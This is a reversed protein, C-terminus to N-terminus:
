ANICHSATACLSFCSVRRKPKVTEGRARMERSCASLQLVLLLVRYVSLHSSTALHLDMFIREFRYLTQMSSGLRAYCLLASSMGGSTLCLCDCLTVACCLQAVINEFRRLGLGPVSRTSIFLFRYHHIASTPM